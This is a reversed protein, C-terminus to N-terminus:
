CVQLSTHAEELSEKEKREREMSAAKAQVEVAITEIYAELKRVQARESRWADSQM